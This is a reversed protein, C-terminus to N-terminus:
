RLIFSSIECVGMSVVKPGICYLIHESIITWYSNPPTLQDLNSLCATLTNVSLMPLIQRMQSRKTTISCRLLYLLQLLYFKRLKFNQKGREEYWLEWNFQLVTGFSPNLINSVFLLYKKSIWVRAGRHVGRSVQLYRRLELFTILTCMFLGSLTLERASIRSIERPAHIKLDVTGQRDAFTWNFTSLMILATIKWTRQSLLHGTIRPQQAALILWDRRGLAGERRRVGWLVLYSNRM